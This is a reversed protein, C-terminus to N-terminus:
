ERDLRLDERHWNVDNTVIVYVFSVLCVQGANFLLYFNECCINFYIDGKSDPFKWISCVLDRHRPLTEM